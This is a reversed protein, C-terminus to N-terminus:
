CAVKDKPGGFIEGTLCYITEMGDNILDRRSSARNWRFGWWITFWRWRQQSNWRAGITFEELMWCGGAASFPNSNFNSLCFGERNSHSHKHNSRAFAVSGAGALDSQSVAQRLGPLRRTPERNRVQVIPRDISRDTPPPTFHRPLTRRRVTKMETDRAQPATIEQASFVRELCM